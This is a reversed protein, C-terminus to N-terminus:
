EMQGIVSQIQEKIKKVEITIRDKRASWPSNFNNLEITKISEWMKCWQEGNMGEYEKDLSMRDM